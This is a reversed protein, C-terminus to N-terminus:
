MHDSPAAAQLRLNLAIYISERESWATVTKANKMQSIGLYSCWCVLRRGDTGRAGFAAGDRFGAFHTTATATARPESVASTSAIDLEIM